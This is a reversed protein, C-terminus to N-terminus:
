ICVGVAGAVHLIVPGTRHVPNVVVPVVQLYNIIHAAPLVAPEQAQLMPVACKPDPGMLPCAPLAIELGVERVLLFPITCNNSTGPATEGPALSSKFFIHKLWKTCIHWKYIWFTFVQCTGFFLSTLYEWFTQCTILKPVFLLCFKTDFRKKFLQRKLNNKKYINALFTFSKM